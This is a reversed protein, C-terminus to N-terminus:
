IEDDKKTDFVDLEVPIRWGPDRLHEREDLFWRVVPEYYRYHSYRYWTYEPEVTRRLEEVFVQVKHEAANLEAVKTLERQRLTFASIDYAPKGRDAPGADSSRGTLVEVIHREWWRAQEVVEQPLGELLGQPPLPARASVVSFGPMTFLDAPSIATRTGTVDELVIETGSV